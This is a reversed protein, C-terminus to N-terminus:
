AAAEAERLITGSGMLQVKLKPKKVSSAHLKYLGKIIGEEAGEPMDPHLYNENMTTIYYF